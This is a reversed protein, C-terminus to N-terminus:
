PIPVGRGSGARRRDSPIGPPSYRARSSPACGRAWPPSAPLARTRRATGPSGALRAHPIVHAAEVRGRQQECQRRRRHEEVSRDGPGHALRHERDPAHHDVTRQLPDAGRVDARDDALLQAPGEERQPKGVRASRQLPHRPHLAHRQPAPPGIPELYAQGLVLRERAPVVAREEVGFAFDEGGIVVALQRLQGSRLAAGRQDRRAQAFEPFRERRARERDGLQAERGAAAPPQPRRAARPQRDLEPAVRGVLAQQPEDAVVRSGESREGARAGRDFVDIQAIAVAEGGANRAKRLFRGPFRGLLDTCPSPYILSVLFRSTPRSMPVEFITAMTASSVDSFRSLMMPSPTCGDRPSFFPTTTLMSAVMAEIWRTSSSASSIASQEIVSTYVPIAPPCMRLRLELPMTAILSFSTVCASMSRTTSVALAIAMWFSWCIQCMRCDSNRLLPCSSTRSGSPILPTRSSTLTCMTVPATDATSFMVLHTRRQPRSTRSTIRCGSAEAMATSLSSSFSSPTQRISTPPPVVSRATNVPPAM